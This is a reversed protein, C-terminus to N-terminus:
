AKIYYTTGSSYATGAPVETYVYSGASGSRTYYTVGYEFGASTLTATQYTPPTDEEGDVIYIEYPVDDVDSISYHGTFEFSFKGKAKDETQIQFGSTSLANKLHIAVFGGNTAGNQDSYDCIMWIDKFDTSILEDRPIIHGSHETDIDAAASLLKATAATVTVFTGSAKVERSEVKKLEKTNKPCNDIDEGFDTFSVDDAFQLGGTTAGLINGITGTSVTFGDCIIGANVVLEEFTDVPIKTFKKAM